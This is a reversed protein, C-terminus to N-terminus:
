NSKTSNTEFPSSLAVGFWVVVFSLLFSVLRKTLQGILAKFCHSCRSNPPMTLTFAAALPKESFVLDGKKIDRTAFM